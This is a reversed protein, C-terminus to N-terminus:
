FTGRCNYSFAYIDGPTLNVVGNGWFFLHVLGGPTLAAGAGQGPDIFANNAWSGTTDAELSSVCPAPNGPSINYIPFNIQFQGSNVAGSGATIMGEGSTDDSGSVLAISGSGIGTPAVSANCGGAGGICATLMPGHYEAGSGRWGVTSGPIFNATNVGSTEIVANAIITFKRGTVSGTVNFAPNVNFQDEGTRAFIFEDVTLNGTITGVGASHLIVGNTSMGEVDALTGSGALTYNAWFNINSLAEAHFPEVSALGFTNGGYNNIIGGIQGFETSQCSLTTAEMNAMNEVGAIGQDSVVLTGCYNPGGNWTETNSGNFVIQGCDGILAGVVPNPCSNGAGPLKANIFISEDWEGGGIATVICNGGAAWIDFCSNVAQLKTRCPLSQLVCFNSGSGSTGYDNGSISIYLTIPNSPLGWWRIDYFSQPSAIWCLGDASRVQSGGDGAGAALSCPSASPLYLLPPSTPASPSGSYSIRWVGLPYASTAAALLDTNNQVTDGSLGASIVGQGNVTITTGDPQVLGLSTTTAPLLCKQLAAFNANLQNADPQFTGGSGNNFTWPVQCVQAQAAHVGGIALLCLLALALRTVALVARGM